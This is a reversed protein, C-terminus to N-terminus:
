SSKSEGCVRTQSLLGRSREGAADDLGSGKSAPVRTAPPQCAPAQISGVGFKGRHRSRWTPASPWGPTDTSHNPKAGSTEASLPEIEEGLNHFCCWVQLLMPSLPLSSFMVWCFFETKVPKAGPFSGAQKCVQGAHESDGSNKRRLFGARTLVEM